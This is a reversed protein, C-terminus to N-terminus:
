VELSVVCDGVRRWDCPFGFRSSKSSSHIDDQEVRLGWSFSCSYNANFMKVLSFVVRIVNDVHAFLM